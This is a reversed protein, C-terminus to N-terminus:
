MISPALFSNPFGSLRDFQTMSYSGHTSATLTSASASSKPRSASVLGRFRVDRTKLLNTLMKKDRALGHRPENLKLLFVPYNLVSLASDDAYKLLYNLIDLPKLDSSFIVFLTPGIGSGQVVSRNFSAYSYLWFDLRTAHNRNSLFSVIWKAIFALIPLTSLKTVQIAHDVM